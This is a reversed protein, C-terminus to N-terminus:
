CALLPDRDNRECADSRECLTYLRYCLERATETAAGLTAALEAAASEGGSELVRTLHHVM